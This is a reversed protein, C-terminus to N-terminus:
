PELNTSLTTRGIPNNDEKAGEIRARVKGYSDRVEACHKTTLIQMQRLQQYLREPALWALSRDYTGKLTQTIV